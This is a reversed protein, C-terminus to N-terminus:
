FQKLLKLSNKIRIRNLYTNFNEGLKAKFIRGLYSSNYGFLPSISELKLDEMYNRDIYNIISDIINDRSNNGISGLIIEFQNTFFLLVEYLYYSTEITNIIQSNTPFPIKNYYTSNIKEKIQLLLDTLFLKIDAINADSYYLKSKLDQLSEAIM